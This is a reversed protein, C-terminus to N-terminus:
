KRPNKKDQDKIAMPKSFCGGTGEYDDAQTSIKSQLDDTDDQVMKWVVDNFMSRLRAALRKNTEKIRFFKSPNLFLAAGHLKQEMQNTWRKQVIDLVEKQLAPKGKLAEGIKEKAVDIAAWIEPMAPREDGDAIRLAILLPQSARMCNEVSTWFPMSLVTKESRKGPPTTKLKNDGWENSVFIAKLSQRHKWMSALTLFSTAFRTVAPRVLEGKTTKRM